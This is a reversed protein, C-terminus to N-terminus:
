RPRRVTATGTATVSWAAWAVSAVAAVVVGVLTVVATRQSMHRMRMSSSRRELPHQPHALPPSPRMARGVASDIALPGAQCDAHRGLLDHGPVREPHTSRCAIWGSAPLNTTGGSHGAPAFRRFSRRRRRLRCHRVDCAAYGAGLHWAVNVMPTRDRNVNFPNPNASPSPFTSRRGARTCAPQRGQSRSRSVDRVDCHCRGHRDVSRGRLGLRRRRYGGRSCRRCRRRRCRKTIKRM